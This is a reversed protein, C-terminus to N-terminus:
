SERHRLSALSISAEQFTLLYRGVFAWPCRAGESKPWKVEHFGVLLFDEKAVFLVENIRM